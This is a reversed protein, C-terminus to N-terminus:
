PLAVPVFALWCMGDPMREGSARDRTGRYEQSLRKAADHTVSRGAM